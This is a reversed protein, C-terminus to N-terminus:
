KEEGGLGSHTSTSSISPSISFLNLFFSSSQFSAIVVLLEYDRVSEKERERFDETYFALLVLGVVLWGLGLCSLCVLLCAYVCWWSGLCCGRDRLLVAIWLM